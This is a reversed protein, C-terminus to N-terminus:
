TTQVAQGGRAPRSPSYILCTRVYGFGPVPGCQGQHRSPQLHWRRHAMLDCGIECVHSLGQPAPLAAQGGRAPVSPSHFHNLFCNFNAIPQRMECGRTSSRTWARTLDGGLTRRISGGPRGSQQCISRIQSCISRRLSSFSTLTLEDLRHKVAPAPASRGGNAMWLAETNRRVAEGQM